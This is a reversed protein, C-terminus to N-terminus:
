AGKFVPARHEMFAAAAEKADETSRCEIHRQAELDLLSPFPLDLADNLNSKINRLAVPARRALDAAVGGVHELLDDAPVVQTLLGMSAAQHADIRDCLLYLERAKAAGILRTLTWSGGFDGSLGASLFATTFIASDAAYRLDAACAWSLGAGACAGNIAAITVKPMKFLLEASRMLGRLREVAQPRAAPNPGAAGQESTARASLDGGACFARGAGTLVVVRISDDSAARELADLIESLMQTNLANLREPRNLTVTAVGGAKDYLVTEYLVTRATM